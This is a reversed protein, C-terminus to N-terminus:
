WSKLYVLDFSTKNMLNTQLLMPDSDNTKLQVPSELLQMRVEDSPGLEGCGEKYSFVVSAAALLPSRHRMGSGRNNNWSRQVRCGEQQQGTPHPPLATRAEEKGLSTFGM